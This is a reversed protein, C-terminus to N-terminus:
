INHSAKDPRFSSNLKAMINKCDIRILFTFAFDLQLEWEMGEMGAQLFSHSLVFVPPFGMRRTRRVWTFSVTTSPLISKSLLVAGVTYVTVTVTVTVCIPNMEPPITSGGFFISILGVGSGGFFSSASIFSNRKLLSCYVDPISDRLCVYTVLGLWLWGEMKGGFLLRVSLVCWFLVVVSRCAFNQSIAGTRQSYHGHIM